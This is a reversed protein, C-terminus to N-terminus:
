KGFTILCANNSFYKQIESYLTDHFGTTEAKLCMKQLCKFTSIHIRPQSLDPISRKPRSPKSISHTIQECHARNHSHTCCKKVTLCHYIM